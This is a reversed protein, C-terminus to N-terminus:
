PACAQTPSLALDALELEIPSFTASSQTPTLEAASKFESEVTATGRGINPSRVCDNRLSATQTVQGGANFVFLGSGNKATGGGLTMASTAQGDEDLRVTLQQRSDTGFVGSNAVLSVYTDKGDDLMDIGSGFQLPISGAAEDPLSFQPDESSILAGDKDFLATFLVHGPTTDGSVAALIAGGPLERVGIATYNAAAPSAFSQFQLTGAADTFRLMIGSQMGGLGLDRASLFVFGDSTAAVKEGQASYRSVVELDSSLRTGDALLVGDDSLLAFDSQAASCAVAAELEGDGSLRLLTAPTGSQGTLVLIRDQSDVELELAEIGAAWEKAWLLELSSSLRAVMLGTGTFGGIVVGEGFAAARTSLSLLNVGLQVAQVQSTSADPDDPASDAEGESESEGSSSGCGYLAVFLTATALGRLLDSNRRM